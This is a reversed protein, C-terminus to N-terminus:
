KQLLKRAKPITSPDERICFRRAGLVYELLYANWDLNKMDINFDEKDKETLKKSLNKINDSVFCWQKTTYYQLVELGCTIRKQTQIM